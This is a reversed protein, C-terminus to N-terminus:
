CDVESCDARTAAPHGVTSCSSPRSRRLISAWSWRAVSAGISGLATGLMSSTSNATAVRARAFLRCTTLWRRLPHQLRRLPQRTWLPITAAEGRPRTEGTCRGKAVFDCRAREVCHTHASQVNPQHPWLNPTRLSAGSPDQPPHIASRREDAVGVSAVWVEPRATRHYNGLPNAVERM